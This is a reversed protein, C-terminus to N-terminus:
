QCQQGPLADVIAPRTFVVGNALWTPLWKRAPLKVEEKYRWQGIHGDSKVRNLAKEFRDKARGPYREDMEQNLSLEEIIAGIQRTISTSHRNMTLHFMLYQSMRKEWVEHYYDYHLCSQLLDGTMENTGAIFPEMWASEKIQWAIEMKPAIMGEQSPWLEQKTLREGFQFLPSERTYRVRKTAKRKGRGPVPEEFIAQDVTIRTVWMRYVCVEIPAIDEHRHGARYEKGHETKETRPRIGRYDLIQPATIWTWGDKDRNHRTKVLQALFALYVDADLDSMGRLLNWISTRANQANLEDAPSLMSILTSGSGKRFDYSVSFRSESMQKEKWRTAGSAANSVAQPYVQFPLATWITAKGDAVANSIAPLKKAVQGREAQKIEERLCALETSLINMIKPFCSTLKDDPDYEHRKIAATVNELQELLVPLPVQQEAQAVAM